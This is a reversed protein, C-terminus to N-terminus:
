NMETWQRETASEPLMPDTKPSEGAAERASISDLELNSSDRILFGPGTRADLQGNPLEMAKTYFAKMGIDAFAMIDGIRPVDPM